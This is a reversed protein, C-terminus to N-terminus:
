KNKSQKIGDLFMKVVKGYESSVAKFGRDVIFVVLVGDKGFEFGEDGVQTNKEKFVFKKM